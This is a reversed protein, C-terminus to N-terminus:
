APILKPGSNNRKYVLSKGLIELLNDKKKKRIIGIDIQFKIYKWSLYQDVLVGLYKVHDSQAIARRNMILIVNHNVPKKTSRFIVFNTKSVNLALRNLNLWLSLIKLEKNVTKELERLDDSEYYINTDDAFLFFSM